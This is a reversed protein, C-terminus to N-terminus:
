KVGRKKAKANPSRKRYSAMYEAKDQPAKQSQHDASRCKGSCYCAERQREPLKFRGCGPNDCIRIPMAQSLTLEGEQFQWIRDRLFLCVPSVISWCSSVSPVFFVPASENEGNEDFDYNPGISWSIGECGKQLFEIAAKSLHHNAKPICLWVLLNKFDPQYNLAWFRLSEELQKKRDRTAGSKVELVDRWRECYSIDIVLEGLCRSILAKLQELSSEPSTFDNNAYDVIGQWILREREAGREKTLGRM